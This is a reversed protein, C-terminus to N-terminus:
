NDKAILITAKAGTALNWEKSALVNGQDDIVKFAATNPGSTGQNLAKFSITNIGKDLPLKFSQYNRQLAINYVVPEENHYITVRDNDPHQFDRCIIKVFKSNTRFDGLHQDVKPYQGNIRKFVKDWREEAVKEKTLIDKAIKKKEFPSKHKKVKSYANKFGSKNTLELSTPKKTTKAPVALLGKSTGKKTSNSSNDLQANVQTSVLVFFSFLIFYIRNKM